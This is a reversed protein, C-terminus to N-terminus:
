INCIIYHEILILNHLYFHCVSYHCIPLKKRSSFPLREIQPASIDVMKWNLPFIVETSRAFPVKLTTGACQKSCHELITFIVNQSVM